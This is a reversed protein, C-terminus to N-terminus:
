SIEHNSPPENGQETKEEDGGTRGNGASLRSGSRRTALLQDLLDLGLLGVDVLLPVADLIELLLEGLNERVLPLLRLLRGERRRRGRRRNRGGRRGGRLRLRRGAREGREEGLEEAVQRDGPVDLGLVLGVLVRLVLEIGAPRREVLIAEDQPARADLHLFLPLVGGGHDLDVAVGDVARGEVEPVRLRRQEVAAVPGERQRRHDLEGEPEEVGREAVLQHLAGLRPPEHLARQHRASMQGPSGSRPARRVLASPQNRPETATRLPLGAFSCVAIREAIGGRDLVDRGARAELDGGHRPQEEGAADRDVVALAEVGARGGALVGDLVTSM